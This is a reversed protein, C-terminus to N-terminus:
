VRPCRPTGDSLQKLAWEAVKKVLQRFVEDRLIQTLNNRLTELFGAEWVFFLPYTAASAYAPGLRSAIDNGAKRDVLGGHFHIVLGNAPAAAIAQRLIRSVDAVSSTDEAGLEGARSHIVHDTLVDM